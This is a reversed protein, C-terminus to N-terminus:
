ISDAEEALVFPVTIITDLPATEVVSTSEVDLDVDDAAQIQVSVSSLEDTFEYPVLVQAALSRFVETGTEDYFFSKPIYMLGTDYDYRIVWNYITPNSVDGDSFDAYIANEGNGSLRGLDILEVYYEGDDSLYVQATSIYDAIFAEPCDRYMDTITMGDTVADKEILTTHLTIYHYTNGLGNDDTDGILHVDEYDEKDVYSTEEEALEVKEIQEEFAVVNAYYVPADNGSTDIGSTETVTEEVKESSTETEIVPETSTEEEIVVESSTETETEEETENWLYAGNEVEEPSMEGVTKAISKNINSSIYDSTNVSTVAAPADDTDSSAFTPLTMDAFMSAVMAVSLLGSLCRKPIDRLRKNQENM